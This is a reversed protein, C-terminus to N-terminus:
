AQQHLQICFYDFSKAEWNTTATYFTMMVFDCVQTKFRSQSRRGTALSLTPVPM